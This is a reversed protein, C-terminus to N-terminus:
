RGGWGGRTGRGWAGDEVKRGSKGPQVRSSRQVREGELSIRSAMAVLARLPAKTTHTSHVGRHSVQGGVMAGMGGGMGGGAAALGALEDATRTSGSQSPQLLHAQHAGSTPLVRYLAGRTVAERLCRSACFPTVVACCRHFRDKRPVMATLYTDTPDRSSRRQLV